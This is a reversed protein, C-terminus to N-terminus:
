HLLGKVGEWIVEAPVAMLVVPIFPVLMAVALVILDKHELPVLRISYVNSTISYLDTTASFDPRELASADIKADHALWRQEFQTGIREALAGYQDNGRRFSRALTPSFIFLPLTFLAAVVIMLGITFHLNVTPLAAGLLVLHASRGAAITTIAM